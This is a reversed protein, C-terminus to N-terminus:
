NKSEEAAAQQQKYYATMIRGVKDQRVNDLLETGQLNEPAGDVLWSRPVSILIKALMEDHEDSSDNMSELAAAQAVLFKHKQAPTANDVIDSQAILADNVAASTIRSFKRAWRHSINAWDFVPQEDPGAGNDSAQAKEDAM